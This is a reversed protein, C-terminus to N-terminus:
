VGMSFTITGLSHYDLYTLSMSVTTKNPTVIDEPDIPDGAMKVTMYYINMM